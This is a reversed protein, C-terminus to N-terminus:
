ESEDASESSEGSGDYLVHPHGDERRPRRRRGRPRMSPLPVPNEWQSNLAWSRPSPLEEPEKLTVGPLQCGFGVRRKEMCPVYCTFQELLSKAANLVVGQLEQPSQRMVKVM